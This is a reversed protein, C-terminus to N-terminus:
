ICKLESKELMIDQIHSYPKGVILKFYWMLENPSTYREVQAFSKPNGRVDLFPSEPDSVHLSLRRSSLWNPLYFSPRTRWPFVSFVGVLGLIPAFKSHHLPKLRSYEVCKPTMRQHIEIRRYDPCLLWIWTTFSCPFSREVNWSCVLVSECEVSFDRDKLQKVQPFQPAPQAIKIHKFDPRVDYM